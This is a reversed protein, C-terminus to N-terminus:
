EVTASENLQEVRELILDGMQRSLASASPAGPRQLAPSLATFVGHAVTMALREEISEVGALEDILRASEESAMVHKLYVALAARVASGRERWARIGQALALFSEDLIEASDTRAAIAAILRQKAQRIQPDSTM